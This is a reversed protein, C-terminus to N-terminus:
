SSMEQHPCSPGIIVEETLPPRENRTKNLRDQRPNLQESKSM